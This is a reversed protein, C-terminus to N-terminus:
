LKKYRLLWCRDFLAALQLLIPTMTWIIPYYLWWRTDYLIIKWFSIDTGYPRHISPLPISKSLKPQYYPLLMYKPASEPLLRVNALIQHTRRARCIQVATRMTLVLLECVWLLPIANEEWRETASKANLKSVTLIRTLTEESPRKTGALPTNRVSLVSQWKRSSKTTANEKRQNEQWM